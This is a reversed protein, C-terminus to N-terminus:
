RNDVVWRVTMRRWDDGDDNETEVMKWPMTNIYGVNSIIKPSQYKNKVVQQLIETFKSMKSSMCGFM